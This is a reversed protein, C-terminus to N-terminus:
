PEQTGVRAEDADQTALVPEADIAASFAALIQAIRGEPNDVCGDPGTFLEVQFRAYDVLARRGARTAPVTRWVADQARVQASSLVNEQARWERTTPTAATAQFAKMEAEVAHSTAIAVLVPDLVLTKANPLVFGRLAAAITRLAREAGSEEDIAVQRIDDPLYEALALVGALTTPKATTLTALAMREREGPVLEAEEAAAYAPDTLPLSNWADSLPKWVAYATRHEKILAFVPDPSPAGHVAGLVPNRSAIM